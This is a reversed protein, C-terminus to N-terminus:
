SAMDSSHHDKEIVDEIYLMKVFVSALVLMPVAVFLGMFGFAFAMVAQTLITLVPPLDVGEKMLIPILLHNEIFQILIYAIGVVAAKEPSVTFAMAISPIASLIPGITPVFELLGALIGLPLAAPVGLILLMVTTVVGIVLMAILQTILWKKLARASASLVQDWRERRHIPILSLIGKRYLQPESAIYISLFLIIVVGTFVAFTSSIVPFVFRKAGVMKGLLSNGLSKLHTLSDAESGTINITTKNQNLGPTIAAPPRGTGRQGVGNQEAAISDQEPFLITGLLGDQREAIWQDIDVFAQPLRVRLERYQERITPGTSAVFGALAGLFSLVILASGIGRPIRIRELYDAGASVALGFLLGLFTVFILSHVSLLLRASAYVALVIIAARAIDTAKWSIRRPSETPTM